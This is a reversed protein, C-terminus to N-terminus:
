YEAKEGSGKTQRPIHDEDMSWVNVAWMSSSSVERYVAGGESWGYGAGTFERWGSCNEECNTRM